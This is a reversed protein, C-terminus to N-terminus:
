HQVAPASSPAHRHCKGRGIQEDQL